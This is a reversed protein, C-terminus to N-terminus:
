FEVEGLGEKGLLPLRLAGLGEKGLLPLRLAGVLSHDGVTNLSLAEGLKCQACESRETYVGRIHSAIVVSKPSWGHYTLSRAPM